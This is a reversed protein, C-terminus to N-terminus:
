GEEHPTDKRYLTIGDTTLAVYANEAKRRTGPVRRHSTRLILGNKQAMRRLSSIESPDTYLDGYKELMRYTQEAAATM